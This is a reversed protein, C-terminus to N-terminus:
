MERINTCHFLMQECNSLIDLFAMGAVANCDGKQLRVIHNKKSKKFACKMEIGKQEVDIVNEGKEEAIWGKIASLVLEMEQWINQLEKRAEKSFSCEKKKMRKGSRLVHSLQSIIGKFEGVQQLM